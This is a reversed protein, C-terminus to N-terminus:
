FHNGYTLETLLKGVYGLSLSDVFEIKDNQTHHIGLKNETLTEQDIINIVPIGVNLLPVHDDMVGIGHEPVFIDALGLDSAIQWTKRVLAPQFKVSYLEQQIRLEKGGIIDVNFGAVPRYDKMVSAFKKSGICYNEEHDKDGLDEGDFFVVDVGYAPPEKAFLRIMELLVATGSAGDNAGLVPKAQDEPLAAKESIPNTDYHTSLLVRRAEAARVSVIINHMIYTKSFRLDEWTFQQVKPTYGLRRIESLLYNYLKSHGESGAHRPGFAVQDEISRFARSASFEPVKKACSFLSLALFTLLFYRM